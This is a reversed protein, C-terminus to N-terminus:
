EIWVDYIEVTCNHNWIVIFQATNINSIDCEFIEEKNLASWKCNAIVSMTTEGGTYQALPDDQNSMGIRYYYNASTTANNYASTVKARIKLTTYTGRAVRPSFYIGTTYSVVKALLREATTDFQAPYNSATTYGDTLGLGQQFLYLAYSLTVTKVQGAATISVAVSKTQSGKTATVTWTGTSPISFMTSGNTDKAKLTKTGNSCTCTSGAPYTAGIVAFANGVGGGSPVPIIM